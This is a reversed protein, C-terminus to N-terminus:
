RQFYLFYSSLLVKEGEAWSSIGQQLFCTAQLWPLSAHLVESSM